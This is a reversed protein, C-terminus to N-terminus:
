KLLMLRRSESFGQSSLRALYMGTGVTEGNRNTGDWQVHHFGVAMTGSVLQKVERGLMDYVVLDVPGQTNLSFGITTSPNFPNPYAEELKFRYVPNGECDIGTTSALTGCDVDAPTALLADLSRMKGAGFTNNPVTGGAPLATSALISLINDRTLFRNRELMLAVTGAVHPSAMSTGEFKQLQGGLLVNSRPVDTGIVLDSSLAALIAEGPAAIHPLTRGDRSPGRSSFTSIAGLTAGTQTRPINDIDIWSIKSVYSGVAILKKSTAPTGVNRVQDGQRFWPPLGPVPPFECGRIAWMDFAGTGFAYISWAFNSINAGQLVFLVRRAGNNPDATTRADITVTGVTKGNVTVPADQIIQGPAVPNSVAVPTTYIGFNYLALGVSISSNGAAPYWMDVVALSSGNFVATLTELAENFGTGGMAQYGGHIYNDAENGAAAVVINGPRVLASLSQEYLSTGDHPGFHGGLSLNVVAPKDAVRAKQFIYNVGNVVDVDAFSPTGARYGKVFVIDASPAMGIYSSNARGNGAATGAVHTGHGGGDAGDVETCVGADIQAKTFEVGNTGQSFDFLYQIRTNNASFSFDPHAWDIGSDLVGMIVGNGSYPRDLGGGGAHITSVGTESRSVNLLPESYGSVQINEIGDLAAVAYANTIPLCAVLINEIRSEIRVGLQELGAIVSPNNIKIFVRAELAGAESQHLQFYKTGDLFGEISGNSNTLFQDYLLRLGPDLKNEFASGAIPTGIFTGFSKGFGGAFSISGVLILTLLSRLAIKFM